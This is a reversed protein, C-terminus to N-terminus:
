GLVQPRVVLLLEPFSRSCVFMKRPVGYPWTASPVTAPRFAMVSSSTFCNALVIYVVALRVSPTLPSAGSSITRVSCALTAAFSGAPGAAAGTATSPRRGDPMSTSIRSFSVRAVAIENPNGIATVRACGSKAASDTARAHSPSCRM